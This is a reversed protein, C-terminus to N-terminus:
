GFIEQVLILVILVVVGFGIDILGEEEFGGEILGFRCECM